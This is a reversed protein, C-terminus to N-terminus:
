SVLGLGMSVSRSDVVEICCKTDALERGQLASNYTGSMKSSVHISVIGDTEKSLQAYTDAFDAPAPQSTSPHVPSKLLEQYLEDESIDVRDRYVKDGFRVYVPVVSIGLEQALQVPLDATSDTVIKVVM